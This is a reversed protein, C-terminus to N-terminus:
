VSDSRWQFDTDDAIIDLIVAIDVGVVDLISM